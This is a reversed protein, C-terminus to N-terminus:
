FNNVAEGVRKLADELISRPCAINVRQFGTGASGFIYGDDFGVRAKEVFVKHLTRNDMGLERCDLWVLYTGEPKIVKIRPIHKKFYAEMFDLNGQLYVLVQELWDDGNRYAAELAVLSLVSPQPVIGSRAANFEDRLKQNPIIITSAGLGALNFTKSGAQCVISNQAFEESISAFPTHKYGKFLLECHVEDSLVVTKHELM